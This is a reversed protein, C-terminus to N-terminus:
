YNNFFTSASVVETIKQVALKGEDTRQLGVFVCENGPDDSDFEVVITKDGAEFELKCSYDSFKSNRKGFINVYFIALHVLEPKFIVLNEDNEVGGDIKDGVGADEDLEVFPYKDEDGKNSYFIHHRSNQTKDVETIEPKKGLLKGFIGPKNKDTVQYFHGLLHLDLDVATKWSLRVKVPKDEQIVAFTKKVQLTVDNGTVEDKSKLKFDSM